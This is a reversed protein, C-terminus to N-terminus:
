APLGLFGRRIIAVLADVAEAQTFYGFAHVHHPVTEVLGLFAVADVLPDGVAREGLADLLRSLAVDAVRKTLAELAPDPFQTERWLGIIGGHEAYLGFWTDLWDHLAAADDGEPFADICGILKEAAETALVRFLDDKGEFYRYFSGHSAGAAAVVDDVRTEHYGLKPFVEVGAEVIRARM